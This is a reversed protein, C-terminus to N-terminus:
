RDSSSFYSATMSSIMSFCLAPRGIRTPVVEISFDSRMQRALELAAIDRVLDEVGLMVLALRLDHLLGPLGATHGDRGVHGAAAGVDFEAFPHALGAAQVDDAGLPV